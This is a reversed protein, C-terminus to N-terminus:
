YFIYNILAIFLDLFNVNSFKYSKDDFPHQIVLSIRYSSETLSTNGNCDYTNSSSVKNRLCDNNCKYIYIYVITAKHTKLKKKFSMILLKGINEFFFFITVLKKSKYSKFFLDNIYFFCFFICITDSKTIFISQLFRRM